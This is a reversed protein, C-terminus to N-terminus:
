PMQNGGPWAHAVCVPPRLFADEGIPIVVGAVDTFDDKPLGPMNTIIMERGIGLRQRQLAGPVEHAFQLVANPFRGAVGIPEFVGFILESPGIKADGIISRDFAPPLEGGTGIQQHTQLTRRKLLDSACRFTSVERRHRSRRITKDLMAPPIAALHPFVDQVVQPEHKLRTDKM